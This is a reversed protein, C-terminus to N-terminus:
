EGVRLVDGQLRQPSSMGRSDRGQRNEAKTLVKVKENGRPKTRTTAKYLLSKRGIDSATFSPTALTGCQVIIALDWAQMGWAPLAAQVEAVEKHFM